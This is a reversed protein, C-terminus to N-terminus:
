DMLLYKEDLTSDFSPRPRHTPRIREDPMPATAADEAGDASAAIANKIAVPIQHNNYNKALLAGIWLEFLTVSTNEKFQKDYLKKVYGRLVDHDIHGMPDEKIRDTVGSPNQEPVM